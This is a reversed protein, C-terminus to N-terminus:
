DGKMIGETTGLPREGRVLGGEDSLEESPIVPAPRVVILYSKM